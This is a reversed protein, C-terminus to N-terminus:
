VTPPFLGEEILSARVRNAQLDNMNLLEVIVRGVATRGVIIPGNWRFHRAWRNRRPNFLRTLKRTTPDLGAINPGKFSNCRLCSLALNRLETLGRHQQAIIQDIPFTVTPYSFQPMRCYEGANGARRRVAQALVEDM